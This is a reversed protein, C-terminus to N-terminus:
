ILMNWHVKRRCTMLYVVTQPTHSHSHTRAHVITSLYVFVGLPLMQLSMWWFTPKGPPGAPLSDAQLTPFGSQIGPDPLAGASPFPLGSWYEQMSFGMSLPTQHAVTWPNVSPQVHSFTKWERVWWFTVTTCEPKSICNIKVEYKNKKPKKKGCHVQVVQKILSFYYCRCCFFKSFLDLMQKKPFFILNLIFCFRETHTHTSMVKQSWFYWILWFYLIAALFYM